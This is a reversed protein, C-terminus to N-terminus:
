HKESAKQLREAIQAGVKEGWAAGIQMSERMVLPTKTVLAQGVETQYFAIMGDLEAETFHKEYVPVIMEMIERYGDQMIEKQFEEFFNEPLQDSLYTAQQTLMTNIAMEFNQRSGNLELLRAVKESKTEQAALSGVTLFLFLCIFNKM